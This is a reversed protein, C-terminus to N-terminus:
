NSYTLICVAYTYPFPLICIPLTVDTVIRECFSYLISKVIGAVVGGVLAGIPTGGGGDEGEYEGVIQAM